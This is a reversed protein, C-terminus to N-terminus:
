IFSLRSKKDDDYVPKFGTIRTLDKYFESYENSIVLSFKRKPPVLRGLAKRARDTKVNENDELYIEIFRVGRRIKFPTEPTYALRIEGKNAGDLAKLKSNSLYANNDRIVLKCKSYKKVNHQINMGAFCVIQAEGNEDYKKKLSVAVRSRKAKGSLFGTVYIKRFYRSVSYAKAFLIICVVLALIYIAILVHPAFISMLVIVACSLTKAVEIVLSLLPIPAFATALVEFAYTVTRMLYFSLTMFLGIATCLAITAFMAFGTMGSSAQSALYRDPNGFVIAFPLAFNFVAMVHNEIDGVAIGFVRTPLMSKPIKLLVFLVIVLVCVFTNNMFGLSQTYQGFTDPFVKGGLSVLAEVFLISIPEISSGFSHSLLVVANFMDGGLAKGTSPSVGDSAFVSGSFIIIVALSLFLGTLVSKRRSATM